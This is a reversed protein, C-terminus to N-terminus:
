YTTARKFSSNSHYQSTEHSSLPRDKGLVLAIVEADQEELRQLTEHFEPDRLNDIIAFISLVHHIIDTKEPIM